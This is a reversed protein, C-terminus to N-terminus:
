ANRGEVIQEIWEYGNGFVQISRPTEYKAVLRVEGGADEIWYGGVENGVPVAPPLAVGMAVNVLPSTIVAGGDPDHYPGNWAALAYGTNVYSTFDCENAILQAKTTDTTPVFGFKFLHLKSAALAARIDDAKAMAADKTYLKLDPM